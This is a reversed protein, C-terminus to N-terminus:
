SAIRNMAMDSIQKRQRALISFILVAPPNGGVGYWAHHPDVCYVCDCDISLVIDILQNSEVFFNLFCFSQEIM